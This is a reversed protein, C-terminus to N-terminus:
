KGAPAQKWCRQTLHGKSVVALPFTHPMDGPRSKVRIKHYPCPLRVSPASTLDPCHSPCANSPGLGLCYVCTTDIPYPEMTSLKTPQFAFVCISAAAAAASKNHLTSHPAGSTPTQLNKPTCATCSSSAPPKSLSLPQMQLRHSVLSVSSM